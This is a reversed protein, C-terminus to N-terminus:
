KTVQTTEEDSVVRKIIKVYLIYLIIAMLFFDLFSGAFAGIEFVMGDVPELKYERWDKGTFNVCYNVLPM